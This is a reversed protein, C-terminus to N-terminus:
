RPPSCPRAPLGSESSQLPPRLAPNRKIPDRCLFYMSGEAESREADPHGPSPAHVQSSRM